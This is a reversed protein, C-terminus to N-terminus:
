IVTGPITSPATSPLFKGVPVNSQPDRAWGPSVAGAGFGNNWMGQGYSMGNGYYDPVNLQIPGAGFMRAYHIFMRGYLTLNWHGADPESGLTQDYTVSVAAVTEETILGMGAMGPIGSANGGVGVGQMTQLALNHEVWLTTGVGLASRWRGPVLFLGAANLWFQVQEDPFTTPNAFAPCTKRFEEPTTPVPVPNPNPPIFM